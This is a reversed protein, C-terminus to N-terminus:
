SNTNTLSYPNMPQNISLLLCIVHSIQNATSPYNGCFPALLCFGGGRSFSTGREKGWGVPEGKELWKERRKTENLELNYNNFKCNAKLILQINDVRCEPVNHRIFEIFYDFVLWWWEVVNVHIIVIQQPVILTRVSCVMTIALLYQQFHLLNKIFIEFGLWWYLTTAINFKHTATKQTLKVM